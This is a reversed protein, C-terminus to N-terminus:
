GAGVAGREYTALRDKLRGGLMSLDKAAQEMQRTSSLNQSTVQNISKMAQHIQATGTAQQGASAAIQGAAQAAQDIIDALAKFNDGAQAIVRSATNVSKSCEETTMVASSTAKQIESLIQRVQATAKKSQEALTKVEVAVVGFGKGHEGARSAEIAANLALLNTQEAIENVSAIIDGIAQAQEALALISEASSEVQDKVSGMVEISEEVVKRGTRSYDLSRHSIDAVAQAREAAQESTQVVQNVTTVTEAVAAAQEQAGAAQQSTGALIEATASVLNNSTEALTQLLAEVRSRATKEIEASVMTTGLSEAMQNFSVALQGLEDTSGVVIRHSMNGAGIQAAGQLLAHVPITIARTMLAGIVACLVFTFLSGWALASLSYHATEDSAQNRETLLREEETELEQLSARLAENSDGQIDDRVLQMAAESGKSTRESAIRDLAQFFAAIQGKLVPVRRQQVPSELTLRAFEDISAKLNSRETNYMALRGENGTIVYEYVSSISRRLSLRSNAVVELMAQVHVVRNSDSILREINRYLLGEIAAFTVLTLAFSVGIKRAISM